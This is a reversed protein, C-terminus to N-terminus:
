TMGAAGPIVSALKSFFSADWGKVVDRYYAAAQTSIQYNTAFIKILDGTKGAWAGARRSYIYFGERKMNALPIEEEKAEPM